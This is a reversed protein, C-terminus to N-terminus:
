DMKTPLVEFSFENMFIQGGMEYKFPLRMWGINNGTNITGTIRAPSIGHAKIFRFCQNLSENKHLIEARHVEKYFIWEFHYQVNEFFIFSPLQIDSMVNSIDIDAPKENIKLEDIKLPQSFFLISNEQKLEKDKA